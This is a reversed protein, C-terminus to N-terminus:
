DFFMLEIAEKIPSTLQYYVERGERFYTVIDEKILNQCQYTLSSDKIGTREQLESRKITGEIHNLIIMEELIPLRSNSIKKMGKLSQSFSSSIENLPAIIPWTIKKPKSKLEQSVQLNNDEVISVALLFGLRKVVILFEELSPSKIENDEDELFPLQRTLWLALGPLGLSLIGISKIIDNSLLNKNGLTEMRLKLMQEIESPYPKKFYFKFPKKGFILPKSKKGHLELMKYEITSLIVVIVVKDYRSRSEIDILSQKTLNNWISFIGDFFLVQTNHFDTTEWWDWFKESHHIYQSYHPGYAKNLEHSLFMAATTKGIRQPGIIAVIESEHSFEKSVRPGLSHESLRDIESTILCTNFNSSVFDDEFINLM